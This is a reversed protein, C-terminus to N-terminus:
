VHWLGYSLVALVFGTFVAYKPDREVIAFYFFSALVRAYPTLLLLAIGVNMLLRPRIAGSVLERLDEVLFQYFNVREITYDFSVQRTRAAHWALGAVLLAASSVVGVRLVRGIFTDFAARKEDEDCGSARREGAATM